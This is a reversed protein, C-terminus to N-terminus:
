KNHTLRWRSIARMAEGWLLVPSSLLALVGWDTWALPETRFIRGGFQVILWQGVIILFLVLLVGGCRSLGKFTSATTSFAKANLLNWCQLMVFFTFFLTLERLSISGNRNVYGWFGLLACVFVLGYGVISRRVAPTLISQSVPRPCETMVRPDAPLSALALAAFTDMILNVWLMQTVTLPLEAGLFAGALVTLLATFNITLQFLVFRQINKYLSRGWLIATVISRFSDDLLPIDSAERAVSTGSGMSLGVQAFNLAPADNTGDGTVAVVEDQRQLLRVLRQKDLPRARSMVKLGPLRELAEEDSLAAFESGSICNREGDAETWLGIQRAIETATGSSDGTVVKIKVGAALCQAVAAPVEPRVPDSIAAMGLLSLGGQAVMAECDVAETAPLVRYAMVLTRRAHRQWDQLKGAYTRRIDDDLGNCLALVVEPAGKVYLLRRGGEESDVVTAMYKKESSFPLRVVVGANKRMSLYNRGRNRLWLLLAVETPNGLGGSGTEDLHATTNCAVAEELCAEQGSEIIMEDVTMRNQTLTGTKDTCIVTIAGMTECAHMRRVLNNTKLMRRMNLALSLTVAMPLGEPVAMVILTVAMMFNNLLLRVLHVYALKGWETVTPVFDLLERVTFILFALVAVTYGVKNIIGALKDLQQNLPTKEGTLVTAERAVQGIETRDGVATVRAVATGEMLTTGRMLRNTAYPAAPDLDEPRVSKHVVPEGTLASENVQLSEAKLLEADAPVEDGAELLIIDGVVIDKRPVETVRAQRVVRVPQESGLANLVDFKRAADYEFYFGIGTALLVACVIGITEAFDGEVFAVGFSLAAAVLLIRVIPDQFKELYLRWLSPCEPPTLENAGWQRRSDVVQQETLGSLVKDEEIHKM